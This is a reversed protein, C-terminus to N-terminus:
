NQCQLYLMQKEFTLLLGQLDWTQMVYVPHLKNTRLLHPMHRNSTQLKKFFQSEVRPGKQKKFVM